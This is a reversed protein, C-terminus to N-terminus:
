KHHRGTCTSSPPLAWSAPCFLPAPDTVAGHLDCQNYYDDFSQTAARTLIAHAEDPKRAELMEGVCEDIRADQAAADFAEQPIGIYLHATDRRDNYVVMVYQTAM